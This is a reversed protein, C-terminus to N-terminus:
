WRRAVFCPVIMGVFDVAAPPVPNKDPHILGRAFAGGSALLFSVTLAVALDSKISHKNAMFEEVATICKQGM